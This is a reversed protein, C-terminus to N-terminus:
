SSCSEHSIAAPQETSPAYQSSTTVSLVPARATSRGTKSAVPPASPKTDTSTAGSSARSVAAVIAAARRSWARISSGLRMTFIGAVASPTGAMSAIIASPRLMLMVRM